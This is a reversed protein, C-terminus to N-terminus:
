LEEVQVSFGCHCRKTLVLNEEDFSQDETLFVHEHDEPLGASPAYSKAHHIDEQQCVLSQKGEHHVGVPAKLKKNIPQNNTSTQSSLSDGYRNNLRQRTIISCLLQYWRSIAQAENRKKEEAERREEEEAYAQLLLWCFASELGRESLILQFENVFHFFTM